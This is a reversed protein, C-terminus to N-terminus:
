PARDLLSMVSAHVQAPALDLMCRFHTLPCTMPGHSSCPRCSLGAVQAVASAEALPGFGFTTVTPGFIAVTPTNMASALHLPASDNTVLVRSRGILAASALLSLKGTADIAGGVIESSIERALAADAP